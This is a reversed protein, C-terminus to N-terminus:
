VRDSANALSFHRLACPGLPKSHGSISHHLPDSATKCTKCGQDVLPIRLPFFLTVVGTVARSSKVEENAAKEHKAHGECRKRTRGM